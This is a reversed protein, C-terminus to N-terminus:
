TLSKPIFHDRGQNLAGNDSYFVVLTNDGIGLADLGDLLRGMGCDILHIMAVYTRINENVTTLREMLAHPADLIGGKDKHPHRIGLSVFIPEDSKALLDQLLHLTQNAREVPEGSEVIDDFATLNMNGPMTTSLKLWQDRESTAVPIKDDPQHIHTVSSVYQFGQAVPLQHDEGWFTGNVSIRLATVPKPWASLLPSRKEPSIVATIAMYTSDTHTLVPLIALGRHFAARTRHMALRYAPVKM